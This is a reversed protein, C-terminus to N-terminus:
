AGMLGTAEQRIAAQAKALSDGKQEGLLTFIESILANSDAKPDLKEAAINIIEATNDRAIRLINWLNESVYIQQTVNHEFEQQIGILLALRFDNASAGETRLRKILNPISIRDCLLTLREYAQLRMPLTTKAKEIQIQQWLLSNAQAKQERWYKIMFFALVGLGTLILIPLAVYFFMQLVTM